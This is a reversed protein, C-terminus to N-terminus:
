SLCHSHTAPITSKFHEQLILPKLGMRAVLQHQKNNLKKAKTSDQLYMFGSPGSTTIKLWTLNMQM